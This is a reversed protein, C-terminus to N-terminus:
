RAAPDQPPNSSKCASNQAPFEPAALQNAPPKDLTLDAAKAPFARNAVRLGPLNEILYQVTASLSTDHRAAWIRAQRYAEDTVTVTINKM